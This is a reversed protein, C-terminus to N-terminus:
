VQELRDVLADSEPSRVWGGLLLLLLEVLRGRGGRGRGPVPAGPRERHCGGRGREVRVRVRVRGLVNGALLKTLSRGRWRLPSVRPRPAVLETPRASVHGLREPAVHASLRPTRGAGGVLESCAVKRASQSPLRTGVQRDESSPLLRCRGRRLCVSWGKERELCVPETEWAEREERGEGKSREGRDLRDDETEYM